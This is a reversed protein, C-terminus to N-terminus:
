NNIIVKAPHLLLLLSSLMLLDCDSLLTWSFLILLTSESFDLEIISSSLFFIIVKISFSLGYSEFGVM